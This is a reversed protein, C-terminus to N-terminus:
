AMGVPECSGDDESRGNTRRARMRRQSRRRRRRIMTPAIMRIM